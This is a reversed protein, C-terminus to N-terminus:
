VLMQMGLVGAVGALAWTMVHKTNFSAAAGKKAVCTATPNVTKEAGGTIAVDFRYYTAGTMTAATTAASSTTGVTAKVTATCTAATIGALTCTEEVTGIIDSGLTRTSVVTSIAYTSPGETM